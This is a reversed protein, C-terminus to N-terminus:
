GEREQQILKDLIRQARVAGGDVSLLVPTLDKGAKDIAQQQAEIIPLDQEAFAFRRLRSIEQRISENEVADDSILNWRVAAFHYHTTSDTEPTLLHVGHYGWGQEPLADEGGLGGQILICSPPDWRIVNWKTTRQIEAPVLARYMAPVTSDRSLRSVRLTNGTEWIRTEAEVTDRGGLIGEHVYSTHSTDLLNNAVLEYGANMKLYDRKTVQIPQADDFCSYDPILASDPEQDGMWVWVISHKELVPYSRIHAADPIAGNGHPNHVCRGSGDFELGHYPCALRGDDLVKGMSLPVFRHPCRDILASVSGDQKRFFVIPENIITRAMTQGPALDDSWMAVYWTNRLYQKGSGDRAAPNAIEPKYLVATFEKKEVLM